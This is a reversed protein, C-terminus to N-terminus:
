WYLGDPLPTGVQQEYRNKLTEWANFDSEFTAPNFKFGVTPDFTFCAQQM